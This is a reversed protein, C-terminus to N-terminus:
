VKPILNEKECLGRLWNIRSENANLLEDAYTWGFNDGYMATKTGLSKLYHSIERAVSLAMLYNKQMLYKNYRIGIGNCQKMENSIQM